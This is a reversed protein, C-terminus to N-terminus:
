ALGRKRRSKVIQWLFWTNTLLYRKWYTRPNQALRYMWELGRGRAWDPTDPKVGALVDFSGGVGISVPVGLEAKHSHIWSEQKPSGMAVFLVDPRTSAIHSIAENELQGSLYGHHFGALKMGPYDHCVRKALLEVVEPRSGLFYPRLGRREALPLFAKAVLIGGVHSLAPLRLRRAGWVVAWEPIILDAGYVIERLVKDRAMLFLKNANLVAIQRPQRGAVAQAIWTLTEGISL